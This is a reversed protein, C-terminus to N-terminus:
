KSALEAMLQLQEATPPPGLRSRYSSTPAQWYAFAEAFDGAGTEFDSAASDPWWPSDGIDRAGQWRRRDPGDNLTVDVAHGIEHAVIHVLLEQTQDERVYIEIHKDDVLTLGYLGSRGDLFDITWGPLNTEWPYSIEDLARRGRAVPSQDTPAVTTPANTTAPSESTSPTSQESTSSTSRDSTSPETTPAAPTLLSDIDPVSTSVGGVEDSLALAEREEVFRTGFHGAVSAFAVSIVM